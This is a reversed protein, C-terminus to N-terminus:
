LLYGPLDAQFDGQREVDRAVAPVRRGLCFPNWQGDDAFSKAVVRFGRGLDIEGAEVSGYDVFGVGKYHFAEFLECLNLMPLLGGLRRGVVTWGRGRRTGVHLAHGGAQAAWTLALKWRVSDMRTLFAEFGFESELGKTKM